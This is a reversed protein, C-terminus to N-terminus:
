KKSLSKVLEKYTASQKPRLMEYAPGNIYARNEGIRKILGKYTKDNNVKALADRLKQLRDAPIGSGTDWVGSWGREGRRRCGLLVSGSDTHRVANATLNDLIRELLGPDSRVVAGTKRM